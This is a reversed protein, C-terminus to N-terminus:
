SNLFKILKVKQDVIQRVGFNGSWRDLIPDYKQGKYNRNGDIMLDQARKTSIKGDSVRTNTAENIATKEAAAGQIGKLRAAVKSALGKSDGVKNEFDGDESMSDLGTELFTQTEFLGDRDQELFPTNTVLDKSKQNNDVVWDYAKQKAAYNTAMAEVPNIKALPQVTGYSLNGFIGSM